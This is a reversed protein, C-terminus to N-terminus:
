VAGKATTVRGTPTSLAPLTVKEGGSGALLVLASAPRVM